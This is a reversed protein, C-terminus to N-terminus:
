GNKERGNVMSLGNKERDLFNKAETFTVFRETEENWLSLPMSKLSMFITQRKVKQFIAGDRHAAALYYNPIRASYHHVHHYNIYASFWALIPPLELYGSGALAAEDSNWDVSRKFYIDAYQHQLVFHWGAIASIILILPVEVALFSKAGILSTLLFVWTAVCINTFYVSFKIRPKANSGERVLRYRVMFLYLPMVIFLVPPIRYIRYLIKDIAGLAEYEAITLFYTDGIGRRDLDGSTKHHMWHDDQWQRFPTFMMVGTLYGVLINFKKSPSFSGHTCDHFVSFCRVFFLATVLMAISTIWIPGNLNKYVLYWGVWPAIVATLIQSSAHLWSSQQYQIISESYTHRTKRSGMDIVVDKGNTQRVTTM